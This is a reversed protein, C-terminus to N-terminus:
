HVKCLSQIDSVIQNAGASTSPIAHPTAPVCMPLPPTPGVNNRWYFGQPVANSGDTEGFLLNVTTPPDAIPLAPSVGPDDLISDSLFRSFNSNNGNVGDTCIIPTTQGAVQYATDIIAATSGTGGSATYCMPQPPTNPCPDAGSYQSCLNCGQNLLTMVPGSTLEILSFEPALAYESVAYGIAGSGGSNGTACYPAATNSNHINKYVWDAATAYRCALRRVGGPGQLWGNTVGSTIDFPAGFSIQVTTYGPMGAGPDLLDGVVTQGGNFSGAMFSSDNDYLSTGGSGTGLIVTGLPTGTPQNVKLYVNWDSIADCSVTLKYCTGGGLGGAPCALQTSQSVTGLPDNKVVTLTASNTQQTDFTSTARVDAQVSTIGAQLGPAIYLGPNDPDAIGATQQGTCSACAVSWDM